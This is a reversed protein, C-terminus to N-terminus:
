EPRTQRRQAKWAHATPSDRPIRGERWAQEFSEELPDGIPDDVPDHAPFPDSYETPAYELGYGYDDERRWGPEPSALREPPWCDDCAILDLDQHRRRATGTSGCEDCRKKGHM